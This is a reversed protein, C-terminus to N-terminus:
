PKAAPGDNRLVSLGDGSFVPLVGESDFPPSGFDVLPIVREGGIDGVRVIDSMKLVRVCDGVLPGPRLNLKGVV